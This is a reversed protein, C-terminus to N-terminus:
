RQSVSRLNSSSSQRCLTPVPLLPLSREGGEWGAARIWPKSSTPTYLGSSKGTTPTFDPHVAPKPPEHLPDPQQHSKALFMGKATTKGERALKKQLVETIFPNGRIRMEEAKLFGLKLCASINQWPKEKKRKLTHRRHYWIIAQATFDSLGPNSNGGNVLRSLNHM